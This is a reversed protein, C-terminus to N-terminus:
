AEEEPFSVSPYFAISLAYTQAEGDELADVDAEDFEDMLAQFRALFAQAQAQSLRSVDRWVIGRHRRQGPEGQSPAFRRAELSRLLDARLADITAIMMSRVNEQGEDTGFNLLSPAVELNDAAARYVKEIINAITRTEVVQVLGHGELLNVHYYLKRVSLGLREAVQKVTLPALALQELIQFRLPDAIIKLTELDEIVLQGSPKFENM